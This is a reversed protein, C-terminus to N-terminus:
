LKSTTTNCESDFLLTPLQQLIHDYSHHWQNLQPISNAQYTDDDDDDDDVCYWLRTSCYSMIMMMMMTLMIMYEDMSTCYDWWKLATWAM